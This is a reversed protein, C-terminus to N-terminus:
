RNFLTTTLLTAVAKTAEYHESVVKNLSFSSKFLWLLLHQHDIKEEM